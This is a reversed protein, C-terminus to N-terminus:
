EDVYSRVQETTLGRRRAVSTPNHMNTLARITAKAINLANSSGYRKALVNEVGLCELVARMAGGAIVGTGESAPLLVVKTAGHDAKLQHQLTANVLPISVMSKKANDIAKQIAVPVERAKGSGIGVRGKGDGVVVDVRFGFIRGGTVVKATRTVAITKDLLEPAQNEAKKSVNKKSQAM